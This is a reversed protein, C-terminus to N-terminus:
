GALASGCELWAEVAALVSLAGPRAGPDRPSCIQAFPYRSSRWAITRFSDFRLVDLVLIM